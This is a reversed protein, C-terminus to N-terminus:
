SLTWVTLRTSARITVNPRRHKSKMQASMGKLSTAMTAAVGTKVFERRSLISM